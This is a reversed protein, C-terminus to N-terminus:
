RSPQPKDPWWTLPQALLNINGARASSPCLESRTVLWYRGPYQVTIISPNTLAGYTLQTNSDIVAAGPDNANHLGIRVASRDFGPPRTVDLHVVPDANFPLEFVNPGKATVSIQAKGSATQQYSTTRIQYRGVPIPYYPVVGERYQNMGLNTAGFLNRTENPAYIPLFEVPGGTPAGSTLVRVAAEKPKGNALIRVPVAAVTRPRLDIRREEGPQIEVFPGESPCDAVEIRHLGPASFDVSGAPPVPRNRVGCFRYRGKPLDWLRFNGTDDSGGQRANELYPRGFAWVRRSAYIGVGSAPDGNSDTITGYVKARQAISFTVDGIPSEPGVTVTGAQFTGDVV